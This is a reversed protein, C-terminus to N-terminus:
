GRLRGIWTREIHGEMHAAWAEVSLSATVTHNFGHCPIFGLLFPFLSFPPTPTLPRQGEGAFVMVSLLTLCSFTLLLRGREWCGPSRRRAHFLLYDHWLWSLHFLSEVRLFTLQEWKNQTPFLFAISPKSCRGLSSGLTRDGPFGGIRM